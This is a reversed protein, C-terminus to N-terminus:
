FEAAKVSGTGCGVTFGLGWVDRFLEVLVSCFCYWMRAWFKFLWILVYGAYLGVM